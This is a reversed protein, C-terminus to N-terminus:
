EESEENFYEELETVFDCLDKKDPNTLCSGLIIGRLVNFNREQEITLGNEKAKDLNSM